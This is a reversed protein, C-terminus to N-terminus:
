ARTNRFRVSKLRLMLMTLLLLVTALTTTGGSSSNGNNTDVTPPPEPLVVQYDQTQGASTSGEYESITPEGQTDYTVTTLTYSGEGTGKLQIDYNDKPLVMLWGYTGDEHPTAFSHIGGDLEQLLVKGELTEVKKAASNSIVLDVPSQTRVIVGDPLLPCSQQTKTMCGSPLNGEFEDRNHQFLGEFGCGIPTEPTPSGPFNGVPTRYYMGHGQTGQQVFNAAFDASNVHEGIGFIGVQSQLDLDVPSWTPTGHIVVGTKHYDTGKAYVVVGVHGARTLSNEFPAWYYDGSTVRGYSLNAFAQPYEARIMELRNFIDDMYVNCQQNLLDDTTEYNFYPALAQMAQRTDAVSGGKLEIRAVTSDSNNSLDTDDTTTVEITVEDKLDAANLVRTTVDIFLVDNGLANGRGAIYMGECIVGGGNFPASGTQKCRDDSVSQFHLEPPLSFTVQANDAQKTGKNSITATFTVTINDDIGDVIHSALVELDIVGERMDGDIPVYFEATRGYGRREDGNQALDIGVQMKVWTPGYLGDPKSGVFSINCNLEAPGFESWRAGPVNAPGGYVYVQFNGYDGCASGDDGEFTFLQNPAQQRDKYLADHCSMEKFEEGDLLDIVACGLVKPPHVASYCPSPSWPYPPYGNHSVCIGDTPVTKIAASAGTSFQGSAQGSVSDNTKPCAGQQIGDVVECAPLPMNPPSDALALTCTFLGYILLLGSFSNPLKM